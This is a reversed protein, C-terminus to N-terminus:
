LLHIQVVRICSQFDYLKAKQDTPGPLPIIIGLRRWNNIKNRLFTNGGKQDWYQKNSRLIESILDGIQLKEREREKYRDLRFGLESLIEGWPLHFINTQNIQSM